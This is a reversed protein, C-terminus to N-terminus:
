PLAELEPDRAVAPIWHESISKYLLEVARRPPEQRLATSLVEVSVVGDYPLDRLTRAFRRVDFCGEGLPVRRFRSEYALDDSALPPADDAHVLAIQGPALAELLDWPAGSRFFHWLDVLLGCDDWGVAACVAVAQELTVLPGYPFFELALRIPRRRMTAVCSRTAVVIDDFSLTPDVVAAICTEAGVAAGLESLAAASEASGEVGLVLVGVDTVRLGAREILRALSDLSGGRRRFDAFSASDIGIGSFTSARAAEVLEELTCLLTPAADPDTPPVIWNLSPVSYLM